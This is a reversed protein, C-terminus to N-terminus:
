PSEDETSAAPDSDEVADSRAAWNELIDSTIADVHPVSVRYKLAARVILGRLVQDTVPLPYLRRRLPRLGKRFVWEVIGWRFLAFAALGTGVAAYDEIAALASLTAVYYAGQVLVHSLGAAVRVIGVRPLAPSALAWGIYLVAAAGAAWGAPLRWLLPPLAWLAVTRPSDVWADAWQVLRDLSVHDLVNGAYSRVDEEPIHYWRGAPTVLGYPTAVYSPSDDDSFSSDDSASTHTENKM